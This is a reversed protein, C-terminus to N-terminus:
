SCIMLNWEVAADLTGEQGEEGREVHFKGGKFAMSYIFAMM